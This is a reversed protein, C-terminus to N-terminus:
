RKSRGGLLSRVFGQEDRAAPHTRSVMLNQTLYLANLLRSAREVSMGPWGAMERLSVAEGRLRQLASGMAGPTPPWEAGARGAALRYAARGGIETLLVSRSGYLALAWLLPVMPRYHDVLGIREHMWHGPPRVGPPEATLVRLSALALPLERALDRPAHYLMQSPFLTVPWVVQDQALCLLAPERHRVCAAVIELIDNTASQHHLRQLDSLLTTPLVSPGDLRVFGSNGTRQRFREFASVRWLTSHEFDRM